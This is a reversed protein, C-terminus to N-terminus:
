SFIRSWNADGAIWSLKNKDPHPKTYAVCLYDKIIESCHNAPVPTLYGNWGDGINSQFLGFFEPKNESDYVTKVQEIFVAHKGDTVESDTFTIFYWEM